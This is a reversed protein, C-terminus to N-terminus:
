MVSMHDDHSKSGWARWALRLTNSTISWRSKKFFPFNQNLKDLTEHLRKLEQKRQQRHHHQNRIDKSIANIIDQFDNSSTVLEEQEFIQLQHM